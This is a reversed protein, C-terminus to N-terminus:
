NVGLAKGQVVLVRLVYFWGGVLALARWPSLL